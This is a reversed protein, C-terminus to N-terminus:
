ERFHTHVHDSSPGLFCEAMVGTPVNGGRVGPSPPDSASLNLDVTSAPGREVDFGMSM